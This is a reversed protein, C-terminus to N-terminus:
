QLVEAHEVHKHSHDRCVGALEDRRRQGIDGAFWHRRCVSVYRNDGGVEIVNGTREAIGDAGYRLIMTAPAKCHCITEINHITDALVLLRAVAASFLSGFVNVMLGYASVPIGLNDVIKAAQMIHDESMFNVEDMFVASVPNDDSHEAKVIEFIDDNEGIAIAPASIGIRSSVVGIGSRSDIASTFTLVRHGDQIYTHRAQLLHSSKGANMVARHFSLTAAM